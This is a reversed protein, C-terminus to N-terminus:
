VVNNQIAAVVENTTEVYEDKKTVFEDEKVVIQNKKGVIDDKEAVLQCWRAVIQKLGAVPLEEKPVTLNPGAVLLVQKNKFFKPPFKVRQCTVAEM